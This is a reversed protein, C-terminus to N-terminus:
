GPPRAPWLLLAPKMNHSIMAVIVLLMERVETPMLWRCAPRSLLSQLRGLTSVSRAAAEEAAEERYHICASRPAEDRLHAPRSPTMPVAPSNWM